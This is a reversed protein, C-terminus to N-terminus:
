RPDAPRFWSISLDAELARRDNHSDRATKADGGGVLGYDRMKSVGFALLEDTM